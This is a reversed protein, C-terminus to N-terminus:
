KYKEHKGSGTIRVDKRCNNGSSTLIRLIRASLEYFKLTFSLQINVSVKLADLSTVTNPFQETIKAGFMIIRLKFAKLLAKEILLFRCSKSKRKKTNAHCLFKHNTVKRKCPEV